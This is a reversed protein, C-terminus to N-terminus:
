GVDLSRLGEFSVSSMRALVCLPQHTLRGILSVKRDDIEGGAHAVRHEDFCQFQRCLSAHLEMSDERSAGRPLVPNRYVHFLTGLRQLTPHIRPSRLINVIDIARQAKRMRPLFRTRAEALRTVDVRMGQVAPHLCRPSKSFVISCRLSVVPKMTWFAIYRRRQHIRPSSNEIVTMLKMSGCVSDTRAGTM